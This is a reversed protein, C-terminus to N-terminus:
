LPTRELTVETRPASAPQKLQTVMGWWFGVGYFVHTVFLLPM